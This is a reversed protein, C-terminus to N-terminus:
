KVAVLTKRARLLHSYGIINLQKQIEEDGIHSTVIGEQKFLIGELGPNLILDYCIPKEDIGSRNLGIYTYDGVINRGEVRMNDILHLQFGKSTAKCLMSNTDFSPFQNLRQLGSEDIRKQSLLTKQGKYFNNPILSRKNRPEGIQIKQKGRYTEFEVLFFDPSIEYIPISETLPRLQILQGM